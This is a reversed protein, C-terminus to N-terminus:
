RQRVLFYDGEGAHLMTSRNRRFGFQNESFDAESHGLQWGFIRDVLVREFAKGLEDILCIPRAKPIDSTSLKSNEPILVLNAYKWALPFEGSKLRLNFIHAVWGMIEKNERKWVFLRFGDPGRAKTSTASVREIVRIVKDASTAWEDSWVFDTWDGISDPLNNKSFLSNLLNSIVGPDLLKTM